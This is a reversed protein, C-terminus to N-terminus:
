MDMGWFGGLVVLESCWDWGYASEMGVGRHGVIKLVLILVGQYEQNMRNPDICFAVWVFCM